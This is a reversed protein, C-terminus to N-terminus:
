APKGGLRAHLSPTEIPVGRDARWALHTRVKELLGAARDKPSAPASEQAPSGMFVDYDPTEYFRQLEAETPAPHLRGFGAEDSWYLAFPRAGEQRRQTWIRPFWYRLRMERGGLPCPLSPPFDAM